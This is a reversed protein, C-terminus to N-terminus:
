GLLGGGIVVGSQADQGAALMGELDEITRYVFCGDRDRGQVAPVFPVSGTALVLRDYSMMEGDALMLQHIRRDIQQVRANLRLSLGPRDYFGPEVLSLEDATTGAFFSSLHVRDYAPRPEEGLVTIQLGAAVLHPTRRVMEQVFCHGVMGNGVVVVRTTDPM